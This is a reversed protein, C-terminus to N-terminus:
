AIQGENSCYVKLKKLKAWSKTLRLGEILKRANKM